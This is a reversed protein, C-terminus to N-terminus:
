YGQNVPRPLTSVARWPEWGKHIRGIALAPSIGHYRAWETATKNQGGHEIRRNNRKNNGQETPTAWRCNGPEYNGNVNIRDLSKGRPREGMDDRFKSFGEKGLWRGCVTIGRGGYDSYSPSVPNLCRGKMAAWVAYTWAPRGKNSTAGHRTWQMRAAGRRFCGCSTSIGGRLHTAMIPRVNGCDCRCFLIRKTQGSPTKIPIADGLVELRGFRHGAMSNARNLLM